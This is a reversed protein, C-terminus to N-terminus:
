IPVERLGSGVPVAQLEHLIRGKPPSAPVALHRRRVTSAVPSDPLPGGPGSGLLIPLGSEIHDDDVCVRHRRGNDGKTNSHIRLHCKLSGVYWTGRVSPRRSAPRHQAKAMRIPTAARDTAADRAEAALRMSRPVRPPGTLM